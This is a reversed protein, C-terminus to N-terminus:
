TEQRNRAPLLGKRAPLLGVTAVSVLGAVTLLTLYLGFRFTDPTYRLIVEHRGMPIHMGLLSGDARHVVIRQGDLTATWGPYATGSYVLFAPAKGADVSMAVEGATSSLLTVPQVPLSQTKGGGWELTNGVLRKHPLDSILAELSPDFEPSTLAALIRLHSEVHRTRRVLWARPMSDRNEWLTVTPRTHSASRKEIERFRSSQLHQEHPLVVTKVNWIGILRSFSPDKRLGAVRNLNDLRSAGVVQVPEYGSVAEIGSRMPLNPLETEIFHQVTRTDQEGYDAYGHTIFRRWYNEHASIFIRTNPAIHTSLPDPWANDAHLADPETRYLDTTPNWRWGYWLLPLAIGVMALRVARATSSPARQEWRMRLIDFGFATLVAFALTTLFLFRAPDHFKSLGPVIFFAVWYLGGATGTAMWICVFAGLAWFRVSWERIRRLIAIGILYLPLWGIFLATEWANGNSWFDSSIPHGFFNPFLLTLLDPLVLYFRNAMDATMEERPSALLLQLAPLTQVTTLALGVATATLLPFAGLCCGRLLLLI